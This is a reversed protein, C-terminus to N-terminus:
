STWMTTRPWVVPLHVLFRLLVKVSLVVSRLVRLKKNRM